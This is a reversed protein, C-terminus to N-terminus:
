QLPKIPTVVPADGVGFEGFEFRAGLASLKEDFDEYGRGTVDHGRAAFECALLGTGCGM